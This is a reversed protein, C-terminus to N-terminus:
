ADANPAESASVVTHQLACAQHHAQDGAAGIRRHDLEAIQGQRGYLVLREGARAITEPGPADLYSGDSRHIGIVVVGEDRLRPDRLGRDTVWDGTRVQLEAITYDGSLDLLTGWDRAAYGRARLFAAMARSLARDLPGSRSLLWLTLLAGVLV